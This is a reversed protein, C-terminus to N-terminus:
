FDATSMGRVELGTGRRSEARTIQDMDIGVM